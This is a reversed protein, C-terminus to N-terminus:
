PAVENRVAAPDLGAVTCAWLFSGPETSDSDLWQRSAAREPASAEGRVALDRMAQYVMERCLYASRETDTMVRRALRDGTLTRTTM